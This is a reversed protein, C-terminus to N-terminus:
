LLARDELTYSLSGVDFFREVARKPDPDIPEEGFTAEWQEQVYEHLQQFASEWSSCIEIQASSEQHLILLWAVDYSPGPKWEQLDGGFRKTRNFDEDGEVDVVFATIEDTFEAESWHRDWDFLESARRAADHPNDAPIGALKVRVTAYCHVTYTERREGPALSRPDGASFLGAERLVAEAAEDSDYRRCVDCREIECTPVVRGNELHALVGRVGSCFHGPQECECPEAEAPPIAQQPDFATLPGQVLPNISGSFVSWESYFTGAYYVRGSVIRLICDDAGLQIERGRSTRIFDFPGLLPGGEGNDALVEGSGARGHLLRLYPM